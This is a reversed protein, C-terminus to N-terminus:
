HLTVTPEREGRAYRITDVTDILLSFTNCAIVTLMWVRLWSGEPAMELRTWLWIVLPVWLIHGIGMLRVFGMTRFLFMMTMASVLFVMLTVWGEPHDIFVLSLFNATVLLVMWLMWIVPMAFISRHFDVIVKFERGINMLSEKQGSLSPAFREYQQDRRSHKLDRKERIGELELM